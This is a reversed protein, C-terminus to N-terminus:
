LRDGHKTEKIKSWLEELLPTIFGGDRIAILKEKLEQKTM